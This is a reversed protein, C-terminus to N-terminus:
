AALQCRQAISTAARHNDVSGLRRHYHPRRLVSPEEELLEIVDRHSACSRSQLTGNGLAGLNLFPGENRGYDADRTEPADFEPTDGASSPLGFALAMEDRAGGSYEEIIGDSKNLVFYVPAEANALDRAAESYRTVKRLEEAENCKEAGDKWHPEAEILIAATPRSERLLRGVDTNIETNDTSFIQEGALDAFRLRAMSGTDVEAIFDLRLPTGEKSEERLWDDLLARAADTGRAALRDAGTELKATEVVQARGGAWDPPREQDLDTGDPLLACSLSTMFSTKGTQRHGIVSIWCDCGPGGEQPKAEPRRYTPFRYGFLDSFVHRIMRSRAGFRMLTRRLAPEDLTGEGVALDCGFVRAAELLRRAVDALKAGDMEASQLAQLTELMLGQDDGDSDSREFSFANEPIEAIDTKGRDLISKETQLAADILTRVTMEPFGQEPDSIRSHRLRLIMYLAARDASQFDTRHLRRLMWDLQARLDSDGGHGAGSLVRALDDDCACFADRVLVPQVVRGLEPGVPRALYAEPGFADGGPGEARM